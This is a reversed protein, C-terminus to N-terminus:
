ALCYFPTSLLICMFKEFKINFKSLPGKGRDNGKAESTSQPALGPETTYYNRPSPSRGDRRTWLTRGPGRVEGGSARPLASAAQRRIANRLLGKELLYCAQPKPLHPRKWRTGNGPFPQEGDLFAFMGRTGEGRSGGVRLGLRSPEVHSWTAPHLGGEGTPTWGM